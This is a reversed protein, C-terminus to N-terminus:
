NLWKHKTCKEHELFTAKRPFKPNTKREAIETARAKPVDESARVYSV